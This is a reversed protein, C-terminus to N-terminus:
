KFVIHSCATKKVESETEEDTSHPYYYSGTLTTTLIFHSVQYM